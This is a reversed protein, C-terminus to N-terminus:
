VNVGDGCPLIVSVPDILAAAIGYGVLTGLVAAIIIWVVLDRRLARQYRLALVDAEDLKGRLRNRLQEIDGTGVTDDESAM